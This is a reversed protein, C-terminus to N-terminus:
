IRYWIWTRDSCYALQEGETIGFESIETEYLIKSNNPTLVNEEPLLNFPINSVDIFFDCIM